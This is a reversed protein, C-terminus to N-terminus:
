LTYREANISRFKYVVNRRSSFNFFPSIFVLKNWSKGPHHSYTVMVCGENGYFNEGGTPFSKLDFALKPEGFKRAKM